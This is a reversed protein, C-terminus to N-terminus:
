RWPSVGPPLALYAAVPRAAAAGDDAATVAAAVSALNDFDIRRYRLPRRLAERASAPVDPAHEDLREAAHRRFREDDWDEPAAAVVTFRGPLVRAAHLRALAPLVYRGALDGTAGFLVLKGIM